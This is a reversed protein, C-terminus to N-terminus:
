KKDMSDLLLKGLASNLNKIARYIIRSQTQVNNKEGITSDTGLNAYMICDIHFLTDIKKKDSWSKYSVIKDIDSVSYKCDLNEMKYYKLQKTLLQLELNCLFIRDHLNKIKNTDTKHTHEVFNLSWKEILQLKDQQLDPKQKIMYPLEKVAHIITAHNKNFFKGIQQYTMYLSERMISYIVARAQIHKLLRSNSYIDLEFHKSATMLLDHIASDNM